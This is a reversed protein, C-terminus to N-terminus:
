KTIKYFLNVHSIELDTLTLWLLCKGAQQADWHVSLESSFKRIGNITGVAVESENDEFQIIYRLDVFESKASDAYRKAEKLFVSRISVNNSYKLATVLMEKSACISEVLQTKMKLTDVPGAEQAKVNFAEFIVAFLIVIQKM